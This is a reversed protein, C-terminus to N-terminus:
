ETPLSAPIYEIPLPGLCGPLSARFGQPRHGTSFQVLEVLRMQKTIQLGRWAVPQFLETAVPLVLVAYPDVLSVSDAEAPCGLPRFINFYHVVMALLLSIIFVRGVM